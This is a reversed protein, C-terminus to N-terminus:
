VKHYSIVEFNLPLNIKVKNFRSLYEKPFFTDCPYDGEIQSSIITTILNSELAAQYLKAGGIIISNKPILNINNICEIDKIPNHTLVINRRYKLPGKLSEYTKRGMVIIEGLTLLKFLQLDESIKWPINGQYGVGYDKKQWAVILKM